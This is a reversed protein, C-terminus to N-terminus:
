TVTVDRKSKIEVGGDYYRRATRAYTVRQEEEFLKELRSGACARANLRVATTALAIWTLCSRRDDTDEDEAPQPALFRPPATPTKVRGYLRLASVTRVIKDTVTDTVM